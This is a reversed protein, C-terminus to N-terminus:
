DEQRGYGYKKGYGYGYGYGYGRRSRPAGNLICGILSVEQSHLSQVADMIQSKNAYDQRVVYVVGDAFGSLMATDSVVSCPPTDVVVYDYREELTEMMRKLAEHDIRYHRKSTSEGSIYALETGEMQRICLDLPAADKKKLADALGKHGQKGGLLRGVTQNRLDADVLITKHGEQVLALALNVATTTKGEGPITSTLLVVKGGRDDLSKRVKARLGRVAEEMSPDEDARILIETNKRRAKVRIRPLAALLPISVMEKLEKESGVTQKLLSLILTVAIGMAVVKAVSRALTGMSITTRSNAPETPIQAADVVVLHTNDTLYVAAKPYAALVANLVDYIQQPDGGSVRLEFFSTDTIAAVSINGPIYTTGLEEMILDRMFDTNLLLPMTEVVDNVAATDYYTEENFIDNEKNGLQVTLLASTQYYPTYSQYSRYYQRSGYLISIMLIPLLTWRLARFFRELHRSLDIRELEKTHEM